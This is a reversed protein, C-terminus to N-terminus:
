SEDDDQGQLALHIKMGLKSGVSAKLTDLTYRKRLDSLSSPNNFTSELKSLVSYGVGPLDNLKFNSWFQEFINNRFTINYGNPKGMKLALRALVLSDSCGISVTCGNTEKFVERRIEECM